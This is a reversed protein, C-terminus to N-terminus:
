LDGEQTKLFQMLLGALSEVLPEDDSLDHRSAADLLAHVLEHLFTEEVQERNVEIEGNEPYINISSTVAICEGWRAKQMLTTDLAVSWTKGLLSFSKPIQIRRTASTRKAM